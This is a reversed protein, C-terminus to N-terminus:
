ANKIQTAIYWSNGAFDKFGGRKDPDDNKNVPKQLAICGADMARQYVSDVDKVYVHLLLENAMFENTSEGMMIVTDEVKIEAHMVSGDPRDYKRLEEVEFIQKLLHIFKKVDGVVFYPSVANYGKPKFDTSM